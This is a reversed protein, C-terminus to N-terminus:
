DVVGDRKAKTLDFLKLLVDDVSHHLPDMEGILGGDRVLHVRHCLAMVEEHESSILLIAAGDQALKAITEYIHVKAGIDVGRTPEDFIVVAPNGMIWKALLIKQQNGGSFDMVPLKIRPPTVKVKQVFRKVIEIEKLANIVGVKSVLNLHPLVVNEKVSRVLVLGQSRRDEPILVIGSKVSQNPSFNTIEIGDLTVKGSSIPDAGFILRAIETRGSGVLGALGVIEGANIDFSVNKTGNEGCLGSVQLRPVISEKPKTSRAPFTADISRGLMSEVLSKKTESRTESTKVLRGDRLITVRDSTELLSELFHTIYIITRGQATLVRIAAHLKEVEDSTLSSTPEDMIIVRAERALARLIEVKQRDALRLSDVQANPNIGFNTTAELANFRDKTNGSLVGLRHSEVGLFVNEAVSLKPVLSLEQAILVVGSKQAKATGWKTILQDDLFLEGSDPSYLGSIIKGLTSKGAGNEGAFAHVEGKILEISVNDLAQTAGFRKSINEARIPTNSEPAFAGSDLVNSSNNIM